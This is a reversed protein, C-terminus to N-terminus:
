GNEKGRNKLLLQNVEEIEQALIAQEERKRDYIGDPSHAYDTDQATAPLPAPSAQPKPKDLVLTNQATIPDLSVIEIFGGKHLNHNLKGTLVDAIWDNLSSYTFENDKNDHYVFRGNITNM